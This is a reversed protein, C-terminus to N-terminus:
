RNDDPRADPAPRADEDGQPKRQWAQFGEFMARFLEAADDALEALAEEMSRDTGGREPPPGQIMEALREMARRRREDQSEDASM